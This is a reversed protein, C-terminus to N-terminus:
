SIFYECYFWTFHSDKSYVLYIFSVTLNNFSHFEILDINYESYKESYESVNRRFM